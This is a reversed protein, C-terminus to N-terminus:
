TSESCELMQQSWQRTAHLALVPDLMRPSPLANTGLTLESTDALRVFPGIIADEEVECEIVWEEYGSPPLARRLVLEYRSADLHRVGYPLAGRLSDAM